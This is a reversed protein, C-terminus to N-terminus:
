ERIVLSTASNGIAMSTLVNNAVSIASTRISGNSTVGIVTSSISAVVGGSSSQSSGVAGSATSSHPSNLALSSYATNGMARASVMNGALSLTSNSVTYGTNIAGNLAVGYAANDVTASVVATNRQANLIAFGASVAEITSGIFNIASTGAGPTVNTGSANLVNTAMNGRALATTSNADISAASNTFVTTAPATGTMAFGLNSTANASTAATSVQDNSVAGSGDLLVGGILTLTNTARNASAEALAVNSDFSVTGSTVGLTDTFAAEQNTGNLAVTATVTTSGAQKNAVINSAAIMDTTGTIEASSEGADALVTNGTVSATNIADNAMGIARVTNASIDATSNSSATIASLTMTAGSTVAATSTQGNLLAASTDVTTGSLSTTNTAVNAVGMSSLLNGSVSISSNIAAHDEALDSNLAISFSGIANALIAGSQDQSSLLLNSGDSAVQQNTFTAAAPVDVAVDTGASVLTGSAVLSNTGVNGRATSSSSNGGVALRSSTAAVITDAVAGASSLMSVNIDADVSATVASTSNQNNITAGSATVSAGDGGLVLRMTSRNATANAISLNSDFAIASSAINTSATSNDQNIIDTIASSAVTGGAAQSSLLAHDASATNSVTSATADADIDRTIVNSGTVTVTSTADNAVAMSQNSNAYISIGSGASGTEVFMDLSSLANINAAGVNQMSTTASTTNVISGNLLMSNTVMNGTASSSQINHDVAITSDTTAVTPVDTDIGFSGYVTSNLASNQANQTSSLSADATASTNTAAVAGIVSMSGADINTGTVSISNTGANGTVSGNTLNSAVSLASDLIAGDAKLTVGGENLAGSIGILASVTADTEQGNVVSATTNVNTADLAVATLSSNATAEARLINERSLVSSSTVDGDVVSEIWSSNTGTSDRTTATVSGSANQASVAVFSADASSVGATTTAANAVAASETDITTAEVRLSTTNAHNGFALAEVTSKSTSVSSNTVAGDVNTTVVSAEDSLGGARATIGAFFEQQSVVAAVSSFATTEILNADVVIRSSADNGYATAVRTNSDNAVTSAASVNVDVDVTFGGNDASATVAGLQSQLTGVAYAATADIVADTTGASASGNTATLNAENTDVTLASSVINGTASARQTNGTLEARSNELTNTTNLAINNTFLNAITTSADGAQSSFIGAGGGVTNGSLLMLGNSNNGVAIAEALNTTVSLTSEDIVNTTDGVIGSSATLGVTGNLNAALVSSITRDQVNGILAEGTASGTGDDAALIALGSGGLVDNASLNVAQETSNATAAVSSTNADITVMSNDVGFTATTTGASLSVSYDSAIATTDSGNLRQYSSVVVSNDFATSNVSTNVTDTSLNGRAAAMIKNNELLVTSIDMSEATISIITGTTTAVTDGTISSQVNNVLLDGGVTAVGAGTVISGAAADDSVAVSDVVNITNVAMNTTGTTSVRNDDVTLTGQLEHTASGPDSITGAITVNESLASVVSANTQLSTIAASENITPLVTINLLNGDPAATTNGSATATVFNDRVSFTGIATGDVITESELGVVIPEGSLSATATVATVNNQSSTITFTAESAASLAAIDIASTAAPLPAPDPEPEGFSIPPTVGTGEAFIDYVAVPNGAEPNEPTTLGITMGHWVEIGTVVWSIEDYTGLFQIVGMGETGALTYGTLADGGAVLRGNSSLIIFPQSFTLEGTMSPRGLSWIPMVANTVNESFKLTHAKYKDLTDGTAALMDAGTVDTPSVDSTYSPAQYLPWGFDERSRSYVEGSITLNVTRGTNPDVASGTTGPAYTQSSSGELSFPYETPIVWSAWNTVNQATAVVPLCLLLLVLSLLTSRKM